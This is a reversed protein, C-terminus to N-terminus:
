QNSTQKWNKFREMFLKEFEERKPLGYYRLCTRLFGRVYVIDPLLQFAENEISELTTHSIKTVQQVEQLEIGLWARFSKLQEGSGFGYKGGLLDYQSTKEETSYSTTKKTKPANKEKSPIHKAKVKVSKSPKNLKKDYDERAFECSLTNYAEELESLVQNNAKDDSLSYLALANRDYMQKQRIYANKITLANANQDIDLIEYLNKSNDLTEITDAELNFDLNM